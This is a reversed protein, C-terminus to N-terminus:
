TRPSLSNYFNNADQEQFEIDLDRSFRDHLSGLAHLAPKLETDLGTALALQVINKFDFEDFSPHARIIIRSQIYRRLEEAIHMESRMVTRFADEKRLDFVLRVLNYDDMHEQTSTPM